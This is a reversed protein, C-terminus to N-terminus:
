TIQQGKGSCCMERCPNCSKRLLKTCVKLCHAMVHEFMTDLSSSCVQLCDKTVELRRARRKVFGLLKKAEVSSTYILSPDAEVGLRTFLLSIEVQLAELHPLKWGPARHLRALLPTLVAANQVCNGRTPECWRQKAPHKFLKKQQRVFARVEECGDWLAALGDVEM